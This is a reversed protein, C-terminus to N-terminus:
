ATVIHDAPEAQASARAANKYATLMARRVKATPFITADYKEWAAVMDRCATRLLVADPTRRQEIRRHDRRELDELREEYKALREHLIEEPTVTRIKYEHDDM